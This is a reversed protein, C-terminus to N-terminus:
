RTTEMERAAAIYRRAKKPSWGLCGTLHEHAENETPFRGGVLHPCDAGPDFLKGDELDEPVFSAVGSATVTKAAEAVPLARVYCEFGGGPCEPLAPAVTVGDIAAKAAEGAEAFAGWPRTRVETSRHMGQLCIAIHNLFIDIPTIWRGDRRVQKHKVIPGGASCHVMDPSHQLWSWAMDAHEHMRSRSAAPVHMAAPWLYGEAWSTGRTDVRIETLKGIVYEVPTHGADALEKPLRQPRSWHNIDFWGGWKRVSADATLRFTEPRASEGELDPRDDSFRCYVWRVLDPQPVAIGNRTWVTEGGRRERKLEPRYSGAVDPAGLEFAVSPAATSNPDFTIQM